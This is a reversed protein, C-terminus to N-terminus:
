DRQEPCLPSNSFLIRPLRRVQMVKGEGHLEVQCLCTFHDRVSHVKWTVTAKTASVSKLSVTFPAMPHVALLLLPLLLLCLLFFFELM